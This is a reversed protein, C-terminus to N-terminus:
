PAKETDQICTAILAATSKGAANNDDANRKAFSLLDTFEDIDQWVPLRLVTRKHSSFIEMTQALVDAHGWGIGNFIAPLFGTATFGILYYGGDASPGIAADHSDLAHFAETIIQGPLDPIDTGILVARDVGTEFARVFASAMRQGLNNGSQCWYTHSAGLWSTVIDKGTSPYFCIRVPIKLSNLTSLIDQVFHTYLSFAFRDGIRKALRTKVKGPEPARLFVLIAQRPAM